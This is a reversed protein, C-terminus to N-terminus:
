KWIRPDVDQIQILGEVSSSSNSFGEFHFEYSLKL